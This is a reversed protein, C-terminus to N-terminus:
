RFFRREVLFFVVDLPAALLRPLAFREAPPLREAAAALRLAVFFDVVFRPLAFRVPALLAAAVVRLDV